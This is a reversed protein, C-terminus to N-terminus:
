IMARHADQAITESTGRIDGNAEYVCTVLEFDRAEYQRHKNGKKRDFKLIRRNCYELICDAQFTKGVLYPKIATIVKVSNSMTEVAIVWTQKNSGEFGGEGKERFYYGVGLKDLIQRVRALIETNSNTVGLRPSYQPAGKPQVTRRISFHGEGDWIGALWALETQTVQQNGMTEDM